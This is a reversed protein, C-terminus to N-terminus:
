GDSHWAPVILGQMGAEAAPAKEKALRIEAEGVIKTAPCFFNLFYHSFPWCITKYVFRVLSTAAGTTYRGSVHALSPLEDKAGSQGADAVCWGAAVLVPM